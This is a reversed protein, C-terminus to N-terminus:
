PRERLRLRLRATADASIRRSVRRRTYEVAVNEGRANTRMVNERTIEADSLNHTSKTTTEEHEEHLREETERDREDTTTNERLCFVHEKWPEFADDVDGDDYDLRFTGARADFSTVTAAFLANQMAPWLVRVRRGIAARGSAALAAGVHGDRALRAVHDITNRQASSSSSASTHADDSCDRSYNNEDDDDDM